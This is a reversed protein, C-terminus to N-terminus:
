VINMEQPVYPLSIRSIEQRLWQEAETRQPSSDTRRRKRSTQETISSSYTVFSNVATFEAHLKASPNRIYHTLCAGPEISRGDEGNDELICIHFHHISLGEFFSNLTAPDNPLRLSQRKGSLSVDMMFYAAQFNTMPGIINPNFTPQPAQAAHASNESIAPYTQTDSDMNVDVADEVEGSEGGNMDDDDVSGAYPRGDDDTLYRFFALFVSRRLFGATVRPTTWSQQLSQAALAYRDAEVSDSFPKGCRQAVPIEESSEEPYDCPTPSPPTTPNQPLGEEFPIKFGRARAIGYFCQWLATQDLTPPRHPLIRHSPRPAAAKTRPVRRRHETMEFGYQFSFRWLEWLDSKFMQQWSGVPMPIATDYQECVGEDITTRRDPDPTCLQRMVSQGVELYLRDRFFTALTPIPFDIQKLQEWIEWRQEDPIGCFLEGSTMKKELFKLDRHSVRPARSQLLHV